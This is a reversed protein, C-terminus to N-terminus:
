WSPQMDERAKRSNNKREYMFFNLYLATFAKRVYTKALQVAYQIKYIM